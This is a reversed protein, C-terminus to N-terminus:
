PQEAWVHAGAVPSGAADTVRGRVAAGATVRIRGLDTSKGQAVTVGSVLATGRDGADVQVKWEGSPVNDLTLRGDVGADYQRGPGDGAPVAAVDFAPVVVGTEDVVTGVISGARQLVVEVSREGASVRVNTGANGDADARVDYLGPEAGTIVFRGDPEVV